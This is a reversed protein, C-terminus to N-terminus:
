SFLEHERDALNVFADTRRTAGESVDLCREELMGSCKLLSLRFCASSEAEEGKVVLNLVFVRLAYCM